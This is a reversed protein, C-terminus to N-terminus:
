LEKAQTPKFNVEGDQGFIVGIRELAEQLLRLNTVTLPPLGDVSEAKVVTTRGVGALQALEVASVKAYARGARLQGGTIM